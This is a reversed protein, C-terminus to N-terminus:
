FAISFEAWVLNRTYSQLELDSDKRIFDYGLNVHVKPSLQYETSLSAGVRRFKEPRSAGSESGDDFFLRGHLLLWSNVQWDATYQVTWLDVSQATIGLQAEKAVSLTHTYFRTLQNTLLLNFYFTTDDGGGQTETVRVFKGARGFEDRFFVMQTNETGSFELTQYGGAIRLRTYPTLLSEAFLGLHGTFADSKDGSSYRTSSAAVEPGVSLADNLTVRATASLQDQAFNAFSFESQTAIFDTHDYGATLTVARNAAWDVTIGATNVFRGFIPVNSLTPDGTTDQQLSPREHLNIRFAGTYFDFSLETQPDITFGSSANNLEPHALYFHYGFSTNLSLANYPTIAWYANANISPSIILDSERNQDSYAVNDTFETRLSAGVRFSIPGAKVNYDRQEFSVPRFLHGAINSPRVQDQAWLLPPAAAFPLLMATLIRKPVLRIKRRRPPNTM